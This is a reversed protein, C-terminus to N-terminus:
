KVALGGGSRGARRSVGKRPVMFHGDLQPVWVVAHWAATTTSYASGLIAGATDIAYAESRTFTSPLIQQLDIASSASGKWLLAHPTNASADGYGVQVNTDAARACSDTFGSPQLDVMSAATGHWLLAHTVSMGVPTGCGVESRTGLGTAYATSLSSPTLDVASAATGHWLIAHMTNSSSWVAYGAQATGGVAYAESSASGAPNLDVPKTLLGVKWLLAHLPSGGSGAIYTGNTGYANSGPSCSGCSGSPNLDTFTHSSGQWLAAHPFGFYGGDNTILTGVILKGGAGYAWGEVYFQPLLVVPKSGPGSWALPYYIKASCGKGCSITHDFYAGTQAVSSEGYGYADKGNPGPGLDVYTYSTTALTAGSQASCLLTAGFLVIIVFKAKM